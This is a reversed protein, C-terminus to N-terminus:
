RPDIPIGPAPSNPPLDVERVPPGPDHWPVPDPHPRGPPSFDPQQPERDPGPEGPDPREINEPISPM